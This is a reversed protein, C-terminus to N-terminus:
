LGSESSSWPGPHAKWTCLQQRLFGALWGAPTVSSVLPWINLFEECDVGRWVVHHKSSDTELDGVIYLVYQPGTSCYIWPVSKSLGCPVYSAGVGKAQPTM